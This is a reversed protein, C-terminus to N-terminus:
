AGDTHLAELCSFVSRMARSGADTDVPSPRSHLIAGAVAELEARHGKDSKPLQMGRQGSFGYVRLERLDDEITLVGEGAFVELREKPFQLHGM